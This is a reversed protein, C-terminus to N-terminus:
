YGVASVGYEAQEDTFGEYKLQKILGSRSFSMHSLYSEAKKAAQENWDVVVSDVAVTAASDSFGEFKLQKILGSKSFAMHSLYSEAKKIANKEEMNLDFTLTQVTGGCVTCHTVKEGLSTDTPNKIVVWANDDIHAIKEIEKSITEGCLSCVGEKKGNTTCTPELTTEYTDIVHELPVGEIKGCVTCKKSEECTAEEWQHGDKCPGGCAVLSFCLVVIFLLGLLKKM